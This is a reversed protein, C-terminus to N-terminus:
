LLHPWVFFRVLIVGISNILGSWVLLKSVVAPDSWRKPDNSPIWKHPMHRQSESFCLRQLKIWARAFFRPFFVFSLNIILFVVLAYDSDRFSNGQTLM